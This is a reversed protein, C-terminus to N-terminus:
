RCFTPHKNKYHKNIFYHRKHLDPEMKVRIENLYIQTNHNLSLAAKDSEIILQKYKRYNM